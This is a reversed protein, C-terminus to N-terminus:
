TVAKADLLARGVANHFPDVGAATKRRAEDKNHVGLKKFINALHTHLTGIGIGLKAALEKNPTGELVGLMVDRERWTLMKWAGSAATHRLFRILATQAQPCLVPQGPVVRTITCLLCSPAVPKILYGLVRAALSEIISEDDGAATFVVVRSKPLRAVLTRLWEFGFLSPWQTELLMIDPQWKAQEARARHHEIPRSRAAQQCGAARLAPDPDLYADLRWGPAHAEFTRRVFNHVNKDSDVLAVSLRDPLHPRAPSHGPARGLGGEALSAFLHCLLAPPSAPHLNEATAPLCIPEPAMSFGPITLANKAM